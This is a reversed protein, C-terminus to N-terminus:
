IVDKLTLFCIEELNYNVTTKDFQKIMKLQSKKGVDISNFKLIDAINLVAYDLVKIDPIDLIWTYKYISDDLRMDLILISSDTYYIRKIIKKIIKKKKSYETFINKIQAINDTIHEIDSFIIIPYEVDNSYMTLKFLHKSYGTFFHKVYNYFPLKYFWLSQIKKDSIIELNDPIFYRYFKSCYYKVMFKIFTMSKFVFIDM